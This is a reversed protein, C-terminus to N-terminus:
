FLCNRFPRARSPEPEPEVKSEKETEPKVTQAWLRNFETLNVEASTDSKLIIINEDNSNEASASWKYSGVVVVYGDIIARAVHYM